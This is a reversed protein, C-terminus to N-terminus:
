VLDLGYLIYPVHIFLSQVLLIAISVIGFVDIRNRVAKGGAYTGWGFVWAGVHAWFALLGVIFASVVVYEWGELARTAMGFILLVVLIINFASAAVFAIVSPFTWGRSLGAEHGVFLYLVSVIISFGVFLVFFSTRYTYGTFILAAAGQFLMHLFYSGYITYAEGRSYMRRGLYEEGGFLAVAGYLIAVLLPFVAFIWGLPYETEFVPVPNGLDDTDATILDFVEANSAFIFTTISVGLYLLAFVLLVICWTRTYGRARAVAVYDDRSQLDSSYTTRAYQQGKLIDDDICGDGTIKSAGLAARSDNVVFQQSM